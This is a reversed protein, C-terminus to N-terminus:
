VKCKPSTLLTTLFMESFDSRRGPLERAFLCSKLQPLILIPKAKTLISSAFSVGSIPSQPGSMPELSATGEECAAARHWAVIPLDSGQVLLSWKCPSEGEQLWGAKNCKCPDKGSLVLALTVSVWSCVSGTRPHVPLDQLGLMQAALIHCSSAESRWTLSRM